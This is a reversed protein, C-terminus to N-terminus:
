KPINKHGYALSDVGNPLIYRKTDIPSLGIRHQEIVYMKHKYSRISHQTVSSVKGDFLTNYYQDFSLSVGRSIGKAARKDKDNYVKVDYMKPKLGVYETIPKGGTEDKFFGPIATKSSDYLPHDKPYSSFDMYERMGDQAFDQYLDSTTILYCLSDTDTFLLKCNEHGYKKLMINYHFNYMHAKSFDLITMGVYIPKNMKVTHKHNEVAILNKTFITVNKVRPNALAKMTFKNTKTLLRINSRKRVNEMTKGFVANMALKYMNANFENGETKAKAREKVCMDIYSKLWCSQYYTMVRHVKRLKMGLSLYLKLNRMTLVYREKNMLNPVLKECATLKMGNKESLDINYPSAMEPTVIMREPALPYDNHEDHLEEPYDLDVELTCGKITDIDYKSIFETTYKDLDDDWQFEHTPLPLSMSTPYLSNSDLYDAYTTPKSSDYEPVLPNNPKAYRKSIMSIGGRSQKEFFLVKDIDTLLELRVKSKLLASDWFLGPNTYYHCPDLRHTKLCTKRYQEFCDALQLVDCTLYLDHYDGFNKCGFERYVDWAYDYDEQTIGKGGDLVSKFEILRPLGDYEMKDFSDFWEYPFVGKRFLMDIKKKDHGLDTFYKTLLPFDYGDKRLLGVVTSLSGNLFNLSDKFRLKNIGISM